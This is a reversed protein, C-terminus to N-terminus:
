AGEGVIWPLAGQRFLHNNEKADLAFVKKDHKIANAALSSIQGAPSAHIILVTDALAAVLQNRERALAKSTRQKERPFKSLVLLRKKEMAQKWWGPVRMSHISRAPCVILPQSGRLLIQLCEQELPSHFGSIVIQENDRFLVATDLAPLLLSGPCTRSAFLATLPSNDERLLDLNGDAHLPPLPQNAYWKKVKKPYLADKPSITIFHM